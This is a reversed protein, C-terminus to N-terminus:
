EVEGKFSQDDLLEEPTEGSIKSIIKRAALIGFFAAALGLGASAVIYGTALLYEGSIIFVVVEKCITSFTTFAGLFGTAIGLRIDADFDLIKFAITLFLLLFFSGTINVILTNLPFIGQYDWLQINKIGFRAMAGLMGGVAIYVYKNM